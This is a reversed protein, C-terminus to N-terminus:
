SLFQQLFVGWPGTRSLPLRSVSVQISRPTVLVHGRRIPRDHGLGDNWRLLFVKGQVFVSKSFLMDSEGLVSSASERHSNREVVGPLPTHTPTHTCYTYTHTARTHLLHTHTTRTRTHCMHTHLLHTHLLHTHLLHTYYTHTYTHTRYTHTTPTHM